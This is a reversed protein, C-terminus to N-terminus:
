AIMDTVLQPVVSNVVTIQRGVGAHTDKGLTGRPEFDTTPNGFFTISGTSDLGQSTPGHIGLPLDSGAFSLLFAVLNAVDQDTPNPQGPTIPFFIPETVFRSISDVSGDHVFGFGARSVTFPKM